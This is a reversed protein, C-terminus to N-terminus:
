RRKAGASAGELPLAQPRGSCYEVVIRVCLGSSPAWPPAQRLIHTFFINLFDSKSIINEIKNM